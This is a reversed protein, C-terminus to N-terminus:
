RTEDYDKWTQACHSPILWPAGSGADMRRLRRFTEEYRDSRDFIRRALWGPGRDARLAALGWCADASMFVLRDCEKRFVIGIQGRSHGPLPVALVSGDGFLDFGHEFPALEPPLAVQAADDAYAVRQRFDAPLLAPLTGHVLNGFRSRADMAQVEARMAILRAAPFDRVGAIHDGHLHSMVVHTIDGPAIGLRQLQAALVEERPLTFPTTWRYLREPFPQTADQFHSSYGTDFLIWGRQPHRLLGCLAPFMVSAWRGGRQAVCEPHTCHGAKMLRFEVRPMTM